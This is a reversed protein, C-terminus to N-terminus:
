LVMQKMEMKIKIMVKKSTGNINAADLTGNKIGKDM